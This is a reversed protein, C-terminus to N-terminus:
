PAVRFPRRIDRTDKPPPGAIKQRHLSPVRDATRIYPNFAGPTLELGADIKSEALAGAPWDVRLESIRATANQPYRAADSAGPVEPTHQVVLSVERESYFISSSKNGVATTHYQFGILTTSM